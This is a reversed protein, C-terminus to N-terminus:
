NGHVRLYNNTSDWVDNFIREINVDGALAVLCSGIIFGIIFGIILKKM